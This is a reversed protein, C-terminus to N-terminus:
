DQNAFFSREVERFEEEIRADIDGCDTQVFVTSAWYSQVTLEATGDCAPTFTWVDFPASDLACGPQEFSRDRSRTTYLRGEFNGNHDLLGPAACNQAPPPDSPCYCPGTAMTTLGVAVVLALRIRSM